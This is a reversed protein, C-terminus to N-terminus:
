KKRDKSAMWEKYKESHRSNPVINGKLKGNEDFADKVNMQVGIYHGELYRKHAKLLSPRDKDRTYRVLGSPLTEAGQGEHDYTRQNGNATQSFWVSWSRYAVYPAPKKINFEAANYFADVLLDYKFGIRACEDLLFKLSEEHKIDGGTLVVDLDATPLTSIGFVAEAFNGVLLVDFEMLGPTNKYEAWWAEVRDNSPGYLKRDTEIDGMRTLRGM